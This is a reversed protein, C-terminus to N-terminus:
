KNIAKGTTDVSKLLRGTEGYVEFSVQYNGDESYNVRVLSFNPEAIAIHRKLKKIASYPRKDFTYKAIKSPKQKFPTSCFEWLPIQGNKTDLCGKVAHASHLDGSLFYVGAINNDALFNILRERDAGFARWRDYLFDVWLNTLLGSSTVLFKISYKEKVDLLWKELLDWQGKGLITNKKGSIRVRRTRTDMVFFAASGFEFSYAFSGQDDPKLPYQGKSNFKPFHESNPAHMGQHEWYAQLANQLRQISLDSPEQGKLKRLFTNKRPIKLNQRGYDIWHWDDDVEHDDLTMFAPLNKLLERLNAEKWAIEYYKRYDEISSAINDLNYHEPKDAYIQDGIMLIFRLEKDNIKEKLSKFITGKENAPDPLYCSGFAFTFSEKLGDQPFTKFQPFPANDAGPPQDDLTLAYYYRTNCDLENVPAIGAFGNEKSLKLSKGMLKADSLDSKNGVWAHLICEDNARGWIFASTSDLGGVIPGLLLDNM